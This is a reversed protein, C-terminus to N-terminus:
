VSREGVPVSDHMGPRGGHDCAETATTVGSGPDITLKQQQYTEPHQPAYVRSVLRTQRYTIM